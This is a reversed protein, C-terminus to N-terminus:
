VYVGIARLRFLNRRCEREVLADVHIEIGRFRVARREVATGPRDGGEDDSAQHNGDRANNEDPERARFLLSGGAIRVDISARSAVSKSGRGVPSAASSALGSRASSSARRRRWM